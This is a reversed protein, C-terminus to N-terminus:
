RTVTSVRNGQPRGAVVGSAITTSIVTASVAAGDGTTLIAIATGAVDLTTQFAHVVTPDADMGVVM